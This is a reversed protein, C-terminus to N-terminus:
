VGEKHIEQLEEKLRMKVLFVSLVQATLKFEEVQNKPWSRNKRCEDFGIGGWFVGEEMISCQLMSYIGQVALVEYLDKDAEQIDPCYFIGESNFNKQYDGLDEEYSYNQLKDKQPTVGDNCWEYTISTYRKDELTEFIYVRSVDYSRGIIELVRMLAENVDSAEYLTRFVYQAIQDFLVCDEDSGISTGVASFSSQVLSACYCTYGGRSSNKQYYLAQDAYNFLTMYDDFDRSVVAAGISCTIPMADKQPKLKLFAALLEEAKSRVAHEDSVEPLYILFEDGGIRGAVDSTRIHSKLVAAVDSLISDGCLHGYNDNVEKFRDVDIILLAQKGARFKGQMKQEVMTNVAAKNYLGTLADKQAQDLLIQKQRKDTDIDAIVGIAKIPKGESDFQATARIRCWLYRKKSNCIRFEAEAYPMGSALSQMINVFAPMDEAHINQSLPIVESIHERIPQYGFKKRWNPSFLLTDHQLDWEFIIDTTQDMIVKHRELSLRLEEQEKKRETIEILMCYFCERGDEEVLLRGKDLIWLLTGDKCCLRYEVEIECGHSIQQRVDAFFLERDGEYIMQIFRNQFLTQIERRTYGTMSLFSDSMSLLTFDLDNRCKHVGGPINKTLDGDEKWEM